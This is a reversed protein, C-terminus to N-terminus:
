SAISGSPHYGRVFGAHTTRVDLSLEPASMGYGFRGYISGESAFLVDVAEGRDRADELTRLMLATNIGRRTHTPAVGVATVFGVQLDDGPVTMPITIASATGVIRDGDLAAFSRDFEAISRERELDDAEVFGGFATETASMFAEFEAPAITRIQIDVAV